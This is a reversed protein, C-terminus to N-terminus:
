QERTKCHKGKDVPPGAGVVTLGGYDTAYGSKEESMASHIYNRETSIKNYREQQKFIKDGEWTLDTSLTLM